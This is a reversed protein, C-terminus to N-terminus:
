SVLSVFTIPEAGGGLIAPEPRDSEIGARLERCLSRWDIRQFEDFGNNAHIFSTLTGDWLTEGTEAMLVINALKMQEGGNNIDVGHRM